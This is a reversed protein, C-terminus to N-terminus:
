MYSAVKQWNNNVDESACVHVRVHICACVCVRVHICARVCVCACVCECVCVCVRLCVCLVIVVVELVFAINIFLTGQWFALVSSTLWPVSFVKCFKAFMDCINTFLKCVNMYAKHPLGHYVQHIEMYVCVVQLTHFLKHIPCTQQHGPKRQSNIM